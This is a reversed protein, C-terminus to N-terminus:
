NRPLRVDNLTDTSLIRIEQASSTGHPGPPAHVLVLAGVVLQDPTLAGPGKRIKTDPMLTFVREVHRADSVTISSTSVSVVTGAFSNEVWERPPGGRIHFIFNLAPVAIFVVAVLALVYWANHKTM